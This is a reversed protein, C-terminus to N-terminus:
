SNADYVVHPTPLGQESPTQFTPPLEGVVVWYLPSRQQAFLRISAVVFSKSGLRHRFCDVQHGDKTAPAQEIETGVYFPMLTTKELILKPLFPKFNDLGVTAVATCHAIKALMRSFIIADFHWHVTAGIARQSLLYDNLKIEKLDKGSLWYKVPGFPEEPSRGALIGPRQYSILTTLGPHDKIPLMRQETRGGPFHLDIPLSTPREKRRRTQMEHSVRTNMFIKRACYGEIYSTIKGCGECSAKPLVIHGDLAFPIIHEDHLNITSGCYICRDISKLTITPFAPQPSM